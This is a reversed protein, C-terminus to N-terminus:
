RSRVKEIARIEMEANKYGINDINDIDYIKGQFRIRMEENIDSGYPVIFKITKRNDRQRAIEYERGYLNKAAALLKYKQVWTERQIGNADQQVSKEEITIPTDYVRNTQNLSKERTKM